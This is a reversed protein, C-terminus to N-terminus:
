TAQQCGLHHVNIQNGLRPRGLARREGVYQELNAAAELVAPHRLLADGAEAVAPLAAQPLASGDFISTADPAILYSWNPQERASVSPPRARTM